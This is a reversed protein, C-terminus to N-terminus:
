KRKTGCVRAKIGGKRFHAAAEKAKKPSSYNETYIKYQTKPTKNM